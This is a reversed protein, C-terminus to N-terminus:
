DKESLIIIELEDIRAAFSLKRIKGYLDQTIRAPRSSGIYNLM